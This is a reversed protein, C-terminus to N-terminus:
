ITVHDTGLDVNVQECDAKTFFTLMDKNEKTKYWRQAVTDESINDRSIFEHDYMMCNLNAMAVYAPKAAGVVWGQNDAGAYPNETIGRCIGFQHEGSQWHTVSNLQFLISYDVIGHDMQLMYNQVVYAKQGDVDSPCQYKRSSYGWETAFIKVDEHGSEDLGKRFLQLQHETNVSPRSIDYTIPDGGQTYPHVGVADTYDLTGYENLYTGYSSWAGHGGNTIVTVDPYKEKIMPYLKKHIEAMEDAHENVKKPNTAYVENDIQFYKVGAIGTGANYFDFMQMQADCYVKLSAEDGVEPLMPYIGDASRFQGETPSSNMGMYVLVDLGAEAFESIYTSKSSSPSFKAAIQNTPGYGAGIVESPAHYERIGSFGAYKVAKIDDEATTNERSINIGLTPNLIKGHFSRVYSFERKIRSEAKGNDDTVTIDMMYYNYKDIEDFEVEINQLQNKKKYIEKVDRELCVNQNEDSVKINITVGTNNELEKSRLGINFKIKDGTYFINGYNDSEASIEFLDRTNLRRVRVAQILVKGRSTGMFLSNIGFKFDAGNLANTMSPRPMFWKKTRTSYTDQTEVIDLEETTLKNNTSMASTNHEYNQYYELTMSALINDEYYDVEVEYNSNDALGYCIDDDIDVYINAYETGKDPNLLWGDEGGGNGINPELKTSGGIWVKMGKAETDEGFNAYAIIGDRKDTDNKEKAAVRSELSFPILAAVLCVCALYSIIRKM